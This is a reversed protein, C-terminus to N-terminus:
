PICSLGSEPVEPREDCRGPVAAQWPQLTKALPRRGSTILEACAVVTRTVLEPDLHHVLAWLVSCTRMNQASIPLKFVPLRAERKALQKLQCQRLVGKRIGYNHRDLIALVSM